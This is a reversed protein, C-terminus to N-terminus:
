EEDEDWFSNSQRSRIAGNTDSDYSKSSVEVSSTLLTNSNQLKVVSTTPSVYIKKM